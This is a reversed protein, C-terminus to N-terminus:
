LGYIEGKVMLNNNDKTIESAMFDTNLELLHIDDLIAGMDTEKSYKDVVMEIRLGKVGKYETNIFRKSIDDIDKIGELQVNMRTGSYGELMKIQDIVVGYATSLLIPVRRAIMRRQRIMSKMGSNKQDLQSYVDKLDNVQTSITLGFHILIVSIIISIAIIIKNM